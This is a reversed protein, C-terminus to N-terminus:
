ILARVWRALGFAAKSANKLVTDAYNPDALLPVIKDIIDLAIDDKNYNKCKGLFEPNLLKKKAPEWYDWVVEKVNASKGKEPPVNFMICISKIVIKVGDSPVKVGRMEVIDNKDLDQVAKEAAHKIPMVTALAAECKSQINDAEEKKAKAVTEEDAVEKTKEAVFKKQKEIDVMM